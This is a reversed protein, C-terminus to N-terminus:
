VYHKNVEQREVKFKKIYEIEREEVKESYPIEREKWM